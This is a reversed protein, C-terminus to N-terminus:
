ADGFGDYQEPARDVYFLTALIEFRQQLTLYVPNEDTGFPTNAYMRLGHELTPVPDDDSGGVNACVSDGDAQWRFQLPNEGEASCWWHTSTRNDHSFAVRLAESTGASTQTWRMDGVATALDPSTLQFRLVSNDNPFPNVGASGPGVFGVPTAISGCGSTWAGYAPVRIGHRCEFYGQLPGLVDHYPEKIAIARLSFVVPTEENASVVVRKAGSDYGLKAAAVQYPGPQLNGFLAAGAADTTAELALELIAVSAGELPLSSDDVVTVRVSGADPLAEGTASVSASPTAGPPLDSKGGAGACGALVLTSLVALALLPKM